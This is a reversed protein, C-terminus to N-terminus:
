RIGLSDTKKGELSYENKDWWYKRETTTKRMRKGLKDLAEEIMKKETESANPYESLLKQVKEYNAATIGAPEKESSKKNSLSTGVISEERTRPNFDYDQAYVKGDKEITRTKRQWSDKGRGSEKSFLGAADKLPMGVEGVLGSIAGTTQQGYTQSLGQTLPGGKGMMGSVAQQKISSELPGFASKVDGKDKGGFSDLAELELEKLYRLKDQTDYDKNDVIKQGRKFFPTIKKNTWYEDPIDPASVGTQWEKNVKGWDKYAQKRVNLPLNEDAFLKFSEQGFRLAKKEQKDIEALADEHHKELNQKYVLAADENGFTRQVREGTNTMPTLPKGSPTNVSVNIDAPKNRAGLNGESVLSSILAKTQATADQQQKMAEKANSAKEKYSEIGMGSLVEESASDGLGKSLVAKLLGTLIGQWAM